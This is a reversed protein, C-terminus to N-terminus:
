ALFTSLPPVGSQLGRKACLALKIPPLVRLVRLVVISLALLSTKKLKCCKSDRPCGLQCGAVSRGCVPPVAVEVSVVPRDEGDLGTHTAKIASKCHQPQSTSKSSHIYWGFQCAPRNDWFPKSTHINPSPTHVIPAETAATAPISASEDLM